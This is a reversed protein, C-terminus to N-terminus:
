EEGHVAYRGNGTDYADCGARFETQGAHQGEGIVQSGNSEFMRFSEGAKVDSMPVRIWAGGRNVEVIRLDRM